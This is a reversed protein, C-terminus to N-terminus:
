RRIERPRLPKVRLAIVARMALLLVVASAYLIQPLTIVKVLWLYHVAGAIASVYVLRHLLNWKRGGLRRIWGKTSTIALPIMLSFALVGATIFPRKPIDALIENWAFFKDFWVYTMFHLSGYFFAFLGLMRRYRTLEALGTLRRLPTVAITLILFRLTWVGNENTLDSLPNASLTDTLFGYALFALPLLGACVVVTKIIARRRM